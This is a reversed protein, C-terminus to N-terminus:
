VIAGPAVPLRTRWKGRTFDPIDVPRSGGAVSAESLPAIASWAAADYVDIDPPRGERLTKLLRYLQVATAGSVGAQPLTAERNQWIAHEYEKRYVESDEWDPNHRWSPRDTRNGRGEIYIRDLQSSFVGRSCQIRVQGEEVRPTTSDYYLSVNRGNATSVLTNNVDGLAYGAQARRDGAGFQRAAFEKLAGSKSSMSVLFTLQDGRNIDMWWAIPGIGETPYLNGNRKLAHELLWSQGADFHRARLDRMFGGEAFLPEGLLGARLINLVLLTDRQYCSEELLTCHKGTKESTEVLQWCEEVTLAAPPTTAAHKGANLAAVAIRAHSDWPTACIVLDVDSRECVRRYGDAGGYSEPAAKGAQQVLKQARGLNDQNTDALARVAAGKLHLLAKLLETGRHGAGVLGIRIEASQQAIAGAPVAAVTLGTKIFNRRDLSHSM